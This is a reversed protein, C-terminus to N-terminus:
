TSSGSATHGHAVLELFAFLATQMQCRLLTSTAAQKLFLSRLGFSHTTFVRGTLSQPTHGQQRMPLTPTTIDTPLCRLAKGCNPLAGIEGKSCHGSELGARGFDRLFCLPLSVETHMLVVTDAMPRQTFPHSQRQPCLVRLLRANHSSPDM